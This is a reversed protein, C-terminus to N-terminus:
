PPPPSLSFVHPHHAFLAAPAFRSCCCAGFNRVELLQGLEFQAAIHNPNLRLAQTLLRRAMTRDGLRHAAAGSRYRSEAELYREQL